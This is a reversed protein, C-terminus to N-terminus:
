RGDLKVAMRLSALDQKKLVILFDYDRGIRKMLAELQTKESVDQSFVDESEAILISLFPFAQFGIPKVRREVHSVDSLQDHEAQAHHDEIVHEEGVAAIPPFM